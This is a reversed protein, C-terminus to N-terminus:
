LNNCSCFASLKLIAYLRGVIEGVYTTLYTFLQLLFLLTIQSVLHNNMTHSPNGNVLLLRIQGGRM